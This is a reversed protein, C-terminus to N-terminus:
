ETKINFERVLRGYKQYDGQVLKVFNERSGGIAELAGKELRELVDAEKLANNVTANLREVIEISTGAPAFLGLWQDLVLDKFGVEQMSPVDQLTPARTTTTQVLLKLAGSKHHPLLPSSGLLALPVQGAVVDTIAQGGGKYPIHKLDISALKAFWEGAIHQQTGIGSTAFGMGPKSKALKVLDAVTAVGLSPHAALVLPQQTLQVVPMLDKLPDFTLKYVHQASSVADPIVGFTYGDPASRAVFEMGIVGAAGPRNEVVFSQGLAKSLRDAIARATIDTAGAPPFPVIVKVPKTPWTQALAAATMSLTVLTGFLATAFPRLM